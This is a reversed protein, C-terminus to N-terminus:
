PLLEALPPLDQLGNLGFCKLFNETTGYLIPRGITDKRGIEKIMQRENLTALVRDIKVGRINEIEIKTIPQKFAIISLTEMAAASLKNDQVQGLKELTTSLEPKTCLQYGAAVKIITLGRNEEAMDQILEEILSLIHEEPIELIQAIKHITIPDGSVFLLAEIHKKYKLYFM